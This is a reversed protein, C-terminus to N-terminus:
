FLNFTERSNLDQIKSPDGEVDIDVHTKDNEAWHPHLKDYLQKGQSKETLYGDFAFLAVIALFCVFGVVHLSTLLIGLGIYPTLAALIHWPGLTPFDNPLVRMLEGSLRSVLSLGLGILITIGIVALPRPIDIVLVAAFVM